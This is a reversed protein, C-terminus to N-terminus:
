ETVRVEPEDTVTSGLETKVTFVGGGFNDKIWDLTAGDTQGISIRVTYERYKGRRIRKTIGIYGEGDIIGAIYALDESKVQYPM